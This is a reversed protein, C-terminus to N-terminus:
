SGMHVSVLSNGVFFELKRCDVLGSGFGGSFKGGLECASSLQLCVSM